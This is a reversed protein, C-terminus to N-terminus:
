EWVSLNATRSHGGVVSYEDLDVISSWVYEDAVVSSDTYTAISTWRNCVSSYGYQQLAIM